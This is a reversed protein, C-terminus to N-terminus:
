LYELSFIICNELSEDNAGNILDIGGGMCHGFLIFSHPNL